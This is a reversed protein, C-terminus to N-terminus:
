HQLECTMMSQGDTLERSGCTLSAMVVSMVTMALASLASKGVSSSGEGGEM